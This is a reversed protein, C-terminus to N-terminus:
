PRRVSFMGALKQFLGGQPSRREEMFGYRLMGVMAAFEPSESVLALGGVGLPVGTQCPVGFVRRGLDVVKKLQAGGGTLIVGAGARHLLGQEQLEQKLMEFNEEMRAQIILHLDALHINKGPFGGDSPLAVQHRASLGEMLASGSERKLKEAQSTTINLGMAIDNTVHDGGIGLTGAAAISRSAYCVYETSGGGLDVVIAGDRKQEPTLVSLGSCLGSFTVDVVDVGASSVVKVANRIATRNGHIMLMDVALESGEMGLPSLVGNNQNDVIYKQTISHMVARKDRDLKLSRGLERARDMDDETIEGQDGLVPTAGRHVVSKADGGRTLLHVSNIKVRGQEEATDLVARVCSVAQEMHVVEGKRIGRSPVEGLGRVMIRGTELQEGILARVKSTGIELAVIPASAM